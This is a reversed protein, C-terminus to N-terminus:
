PFANGAWDNSLAPDGPRYPIDADYRGPVLEYRQDQSGGIKSSYYGAVILAKVAPWASGAPNGTAFSGADLSELAKHRDAPSLSLIPAGARADLESRLRQIEDGKAGLTLHAIGMIVFAAVGAARAGPVNTAPIVLDSVVDILETDRSPAPPGALAIKAWLAASAAVGLQLIDRRDVAVPSM